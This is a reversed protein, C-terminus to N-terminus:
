QVTFDIRQKATARAVRDIATVQLLYRGTPLSNLNIEAAYPIRTQDPFGEANIKSLPTTIVPQDDRFVQVQLAIDSTTTKLAANYIHLLFRMRSDRAFRRDASVVVPAEDDANDAVPTTEERAPRSGVFISSLAFQGQAVNPIEIWEMASGTRGSKVDRTAIRVQYLGPALPIQQSYLIRRDPADAETRPPLVSLQQKFSSVPKGQESLVAGLVDARANQQGSAASYDLATDDIELSINLVTAHKRTHVYGVSLATPLASKPFAARLANVLEGESSKEADKAKDADKEKEKKEKEKGRRAEAAVPPPADFFGRRVMVKLDPRGKVSVELRRFKAGRGEAQEPRWALLYYVSTEKLAKALSVNLANTNVLARGGTQEALTFLPEQLASRESAQIHSLRGGTDFAEDSSADAFGSTLGRTDMSYIVSGSRAAADAIRHMRDRATTERSRLLFGDSMFFVIKRGPIEASSRILSELTSLTNVSVASAQQLVLNARLAVMQEATDRRMEPMQKLIQEAFYDVVQFDRQEVAVAQHESMPPRDHDRVNYPRYSLQAVAKRLVAKEGTLQQLFGLQGSASAVVARDNQGMEENIFRLLTDRAHKLSGMSLHLDDIFFVVVRGRDLPRVTGSVKETSVRRVVSSSGGRAAALQADEDLTGARVREFFSISQPKGDVRLEFQEARLDDVFRGQKDFVMVDTQVLETNVRVVEDDQARAVNSLLSCAILISPLIRTLASVKPPM